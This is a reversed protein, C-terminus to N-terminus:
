AERSRVASTSARPPVRLLRRLSIVSCAPMMARWRAVLQAAKAVLLLAAIVGLTALVPMVPLTHFAARAASSAGHALGTRAAGGVLAAHADRVVHSSGAVSQTRGVALRLLAYALEVCAIMSLAITLQRLVRIWRALSSQGRLTRAVELPVMLLASVIFFVVSLGVGPLGASM